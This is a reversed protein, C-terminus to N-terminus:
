DNFRWKIKYFINGRGDEFTELPTHWPLCVVEGTKVMCYASGKGVWKLTTKIETPQEGVKGVLMMVVAGAKIHKIRLGKRKKSAM